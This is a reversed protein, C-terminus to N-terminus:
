SRPHDELHDAPGSRSKGARHRFRLPASLAPGFINGPNTESRRTWFYRKEKKIERGSKDSKRGRERGGSIAVGVKLLLNEERVPLGVGPVGLRRSMALRGEMGEQRGGQGKAIAAGYTWCTM